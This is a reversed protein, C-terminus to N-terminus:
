ITKKVKDKKICFKRIWGCHKGDKKSIVKYDLKNGCEVFDYVDHLDPVKIGKVTM